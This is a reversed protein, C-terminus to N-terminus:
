GAASPRDAVSRRQLHQWLRPLLQEGAAAWATVDASDLSSPPGVASARLWIDCLVSLLWMRATAAAPDAGVCVAGNGRLLMATQDGLTSAAATALAATRNLRPVLHVPIRGSIWASQGHIPMLEDTVSAVAFTSPPQARCIAGADPRMRYIATHLWAEPPAGDPLDTVALDIVITRDATLEALDGPASIRYSGPTERVSVHGFATVLGLAAMVHGAEVIQVAAPEVGPSVAPVM